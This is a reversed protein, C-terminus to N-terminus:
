SFHPSGSRSLLHPQFSPNGFQPLTEASFNPAQFSLFKRMTLPFMRPNPYPGPSPPSAHLRAGPISLLVPPLLHTLTLSGLRSSGPDRQQIFGLVWIKEPSDPATKGTVLVCPKAM